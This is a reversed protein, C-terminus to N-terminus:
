KPFLSLSFLFLQGATQSSHAASHTVIDHQALYILHWTVPIVDGNLCGGYQRTREEGQEESQAAAVFFIHLCLAFSIIM